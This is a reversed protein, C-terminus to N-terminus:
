RIQQLEALAVDLNNAVGQAVMQAFRRDGGDALARVRAAHAHLHAAVIELFAPGTGTWGYGALFLRLRRPRAGFDTFGERTVVRRAHLPVWGFAAFALDQEPSVPGAM